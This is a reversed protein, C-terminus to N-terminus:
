SLGSRRSCQPLSCATAHERGWHLRNNMTQTRKRDVSVQDDIREFCSSGIRYMKHASVPASKKKVCLASARYAAALSFPGLRCIAGVVTTLSPLWSVTGMAKALLPAAMAAVTKESSKSSAHRASSGYSPLLSPRGSAIPNFIGGPRKADTLKLAASLSLSISTM